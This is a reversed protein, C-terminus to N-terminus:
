RGEYTPTEKAFFARMSEITDATTFNLAQATSEAELSQAFSSENAENLMRKTQALAIPPGAALRGAWEAVVADLEDPAVVRNVLGIREGEVADVIDGFLALEKARHLGILRPLLWAGGFDLSLARQAFIESFRAESSAITLDCGLALNLGAGAAIGNIRAVTPKSLDHLALAVLHLRRMRALGNRDDTPEDGLDAGSCFSEGAGTLVLVRVRPDQEAETFVALLERFMVESIANRREPRNMTVTLIGDTRDIQLTELQVDAVARM